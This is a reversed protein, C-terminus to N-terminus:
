TGRRATCRIGGQPQIMYYIKMLCESLEHFTAGIACLGYSIRPWFQKDMMFWNNCRSLNGAKIREM